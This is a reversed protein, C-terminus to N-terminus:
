QNRGQDSASKVATSVRALPPDEGHERKASRTAGTGAEGGKGATGRLPAPFADAGFFTLVKRRRRTKWLIRSLGDAEKTSLADM